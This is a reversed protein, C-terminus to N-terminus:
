KPPRDLFVGGTASVSQILYRWPLPLFRSRSLTSLHCREEGKTGDEIKCDFIFGGKWYADTSHDETRSLCSCSSCSTQRFISSEVGCLLSSEEGELELWTVLLWGRGRESGKGASGQGQESGGGEEKSGGQLGGHPHFYCSAKAPSPNKVSPHRRRRRRRLLLLEFYSVM